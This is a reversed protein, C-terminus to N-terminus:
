RTSSKGASEDRTHRLVWQTIITLASPAFTEEIRSFESPAGTTATQFLHNLGPLEMVTVDHDHVLAARIAPLNQKAPVALDLSGNLALAPVRVKRLAIAPDLRLFQEMWATTVYAPLSRAEDPEITKDALGALVITQM